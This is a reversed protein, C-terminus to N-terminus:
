PGTRVKTLLGRRAPDEYLPQGLFAYHDVNNITWLTELLSDVSLGLAHEEIRAGAEELRLSARLAVELVAPDLEDVKDCDSWWAVRLGKVGADLTALYDPPPDTMCTPDRRDPGALVQFLTAADRVDRVLPGVGSFFLTRGFGGHRPVRGNSPLLGHVGCFASPIRTSGGSDSGVAVPTMGVAVSAAAGGSSGGTTRRVDWPNVCEPVLRSVTRSFMEFEPTNTKGIIVAGARRLREAYVSDEAPVHDKYLLSGGTTRVGQTWFHDKISLPIGLLPGAEAGGGISKEAARAQAIAGDHDVTIFCHLSEDLRAIRDLCQHVVEVPSLQGDLMLRRLQWAPLLTAEGGSM